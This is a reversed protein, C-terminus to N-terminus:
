YQCGFGLMSALLYLGTLVIMQIMRVSGVSKVEDM